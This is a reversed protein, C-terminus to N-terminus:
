RGRGLARLAPPAYNYFMDACEDRGVAPFRTSAPLSIAVIQNVWGTIRAEEDPYTPGVAGERIEVFRRIFYSLMDAIQILHVQRSDGFYPVDVIQDLQPQRRGRSYYPDSWEPPHVILNAVHSEERNENDFIFVTNGKNKEERQLAKQIVLLQHFAMYCWPSHFVRLRPDIAHNAHYLGIDVGVFSVKHRRSALWNLIATIIAAREPGDLNRWPSNGRYFDRTHFEDIRRGCIDSLEDLLLAWDSKTVHMRQSDVIIGTMIAYPEGGTGSEDLYCFKV